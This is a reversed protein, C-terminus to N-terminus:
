QKILAEVAGKGFKEDLRDYYPRMAERFPTTDPKTVTVGKSKFADILSTEQAYVMDNHVKRATQAAQTIWGREKEGLKKWTKDSIVIAKTAIFHNTLAVHSQVEYFKMTDITPLPNEQADVQNTQLALYVEQFAVPVPKAGAAQAFDILFDVNPTRLKLGKMDAISNIPKNSTTQRTGSYWVDIVRVGQKEFEAEMKQGYPGNLIRLFHDYDRVVYPEGVVKLEPVLYSMDPYGIATFDIEGEQVQEVVARLGGLQESPFIDFGVAKGSLKELEEKMAVTGKYIISGPSDQMAFKMTGAAMSPAATMMAAAGILGAILSKTFPITM